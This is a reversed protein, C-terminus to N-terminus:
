VREMVGTGEEVVQANKGKLEALLDLYLWGSKQREQGIEKEQTKSARGEQSIDKFVQWSQEAGKDILAAEWPTRNVEKLVHFKQLICPGPIRAKSKAQGM